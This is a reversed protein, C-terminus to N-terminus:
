FSAFKSNSEKSDKTTVLKIGPPGSKSYGVAIYPASSSSPSATLNFVGGSGTVTYFQSTCNSTAVLNPHTTKLDGGFIRVAFYYDKPAVVGVAGSKADYAVQVGDEPSGAVAAGGM